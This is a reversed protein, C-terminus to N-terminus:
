AKRLLWGDKTCYALLPFRDPVDALMVAGFKLVEDNPIALEPALAVDPLIPSKLPALNNILPMAGVRVEFLAKCCVTVFVLPEMGALVNAKVIPVDEVFTVVPM